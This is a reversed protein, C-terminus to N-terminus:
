LNQFHCVVCQCRMGLCLSLLKLLKCLVCVCFICMHTHTHTSAAQALRRAARLWCCCCCTLTISIQTCCNLSSQCADAQAVISSAEKPQKGEEEAGERGERGEDGEGEKQEKGERAAERPEYISAHKYSNSLQSKSLKLVVDGCAMGLSRKGTEGRSGETM